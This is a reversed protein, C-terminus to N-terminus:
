RPTVYLLWRSICRRDGSGRRTPLWVIGRTGAPRRPGDFAAALRKPITLEVVGDVTVHVFAEVQDGAQGPPVPTAVVDTERRKAIARLDEGADYVRLDVRCGTQREFRPIDADTWVPALLAVRPESTTSGCGAVALLAVAAGLRIAM